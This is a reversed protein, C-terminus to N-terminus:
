HQGPPLLALETRRRVFTVNQDELFARDGRSPSRQCNQVDRVAVILFNLRANWRAHTV